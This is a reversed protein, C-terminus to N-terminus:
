CKTKIQTDKSNESKKIICKGYLWRGIGIDSKDINNVNDIDITDTTTITQIDNLLKITYVISCALCIILLIIIIFQRLNAMKYDRLIQLTVMDNKM